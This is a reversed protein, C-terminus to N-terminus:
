PDVREPRSRRRVAVLLLGVLLLGLGAVEGHDGTGTQPLGTTVVPTPSAEPSAPPSPPAPLAVTSSPSVGGPLPTVVPAASTQPPAVPRPTAAIARAGAGTPVTAPDLSTLAGTAGIRFQSVADAAPPDSDGDPSGDDVFLFNDDPTIAAEYGFREVALRGTAITAPSLPTLQGTSGIGFQAIQSHGDPDLATVYLFKGDGTMALDLAVWQHAWPFDRHAGPVAPLPTTAAAAASGLNVFPPSLPTLQGDAAISYENLFFGAEYLFRGDPTIKLDNGLGSGASEPSLPALRGDAGVSFQSIGRDGEGYLFRGDPSMTLEGAHFRPSVTPPSLPALAGSPGVRYQSIKSATANDVYAFKGDPTFVIEIPGDATPVTPTPLPTLAGDAGVSFQGLADHGPGTVDTLSVYLNRGSPNLELEGPTLSGTTVTSPSLTVLQGAADVSFQSVTKDTANSVYVHAPTTVQPGAAPASPGTLTPMRAQPHAAAPGTRALMATPNVVVM